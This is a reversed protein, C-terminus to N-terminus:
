TGGKKLYEAYMSKVFDNQNRLVLIYKANPFLSNLRDFILKRNFANQLPFGSFQEECLTLIGNGVTKKSINQNFLRIAENIEYILENERLIYQNFEALVDPSRLHKYNFQPHSPYFSK